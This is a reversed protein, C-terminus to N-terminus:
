PSGECLQRFHANWPNATAVLENLREVVIEEDEEGPLIVFARSEHELIHLQRGGLPLAQGLRDRWEQAQGEHDCDWRFSQYWAITRAPEILEELERLFAYRSADKSGHSLKKPARDSRPDALGTDPDLFVLRAHGIKERVGSFWAKREDRRQGVAAMPMPKSHFIVENHASSGLLGSDEVARIHRQCCVIRKLQDFLQKDCSRYHDRLVPNFLYEIKQGHGSPTSKVTGDDPIYWAVGLHLLPEARPCIGALARLLGYKGFDGIDGVFRDQM